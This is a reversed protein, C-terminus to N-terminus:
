QVCMEVMAWWRSALWTFLPILVYSMYDRVALTFQNGSGGATHLVCEKGGCMVSEELCILSMTLTAIVCVGQMRLPEDGRITHGSSALLSLRSYLDIRFDTHTHVEMNHDRDELSITKVTSVSVSIEKLFFFQGPHLQSTQQANAKRGLLQHM